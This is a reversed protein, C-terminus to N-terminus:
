FLFEPVKQAKEPILAKFGQRECWFYDKIYGSGQIININLYM